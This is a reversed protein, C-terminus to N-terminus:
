FFFDVGGRNLLVRHGFPGEPEKAGGLLFALFITIAATALAAIVFGAVAAAGVLAAAAVVVAVVAAASVHRRSAGLATPM